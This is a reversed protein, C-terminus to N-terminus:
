SILHKLSTLHVSLQIMLENANVPFQTLKINKSIKNKLELHKVNDYVVSAQFLSTIFPELNHVMLNLTQYTKQLVPIGSAAM